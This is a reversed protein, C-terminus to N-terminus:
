NVHRLGITGRSRRGRNKEPREYFLGNHARDASPKKRGSDRRPWVLVLNGKPPTFGRSKAPPAGVGGPIKRITAGAGGNRLGDYVEWRRAPLVSQM